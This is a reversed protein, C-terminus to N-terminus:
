SKGEMRKIIDDVIKKAESLSEKPIVGSMAFAVRLAKLRKILEEQPISEEKIKEITKAKKMFFTLGFIFLVIGSLSVGLAFPKEIFLNLYESLTVKKTYVYAQNGDNTYSATIFADMKLPGIANDTTIVKGTATRLIFVNEDTKNIRILTGGSYLHNIFQAMNHSIRSLKMNAYIEFAVWQGVFFLIAGVVMLVLAFVKNM